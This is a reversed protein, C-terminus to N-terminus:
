FGPYSSSRGTPRPFHPISSFDYEARPIKNVADALGGLGSGCVIAVKPKGLVGELGTTLFNAADKAQADISSKQLDAM